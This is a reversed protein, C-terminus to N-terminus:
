KWPDYTGFSWLHGEPDRVAYERSGYDTDRLETVVNAGAARARAYHADINQVCVYVGQQVTDWPNGPEHTGSGVLVMGRGATLQAHAVAGDPGPVVFHKELGFTRELWELAAAGNRYRLAPFVNSTGAPHQAM